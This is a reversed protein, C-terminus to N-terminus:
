AEIFARRVVKDAMWALRVEERGDNGGQLRLTSRGSPSSFIASWSETPRQEEEHRPVAAARPGRGVPADVGDHFNMTRRPRGLRWALANYTHAAEHATEFTGLGIRVDGTRIEV